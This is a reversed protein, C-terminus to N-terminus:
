GIQEVTYTGDGIHIVRWIGIATKFEENLGLPTDRGLKKELAYQPVTQVQGREM